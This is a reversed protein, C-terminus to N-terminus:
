RKTNKKGKEMDRIFNKVFNLKTELKKAYDYVKDGMKKLVYLKNQLTRKEVNKHYYARADALHKEYKDKRAKTVNLYYDKNCQKRDAKLM